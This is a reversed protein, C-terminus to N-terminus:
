EEKKKNNKNIQNQHLHQHQHENNNNKIKKKRKVCCFKVILYEVFCFFLIFAIILIWYYNEDWFSYKESLLYSIIKFTKTFLYFYGVKNPMKIMIKNKDEIFDIISSKNLRELPFISFKGKSAYILNPIKELNFRLSTWGSEIVDIKYFTINSNKNSYIEAIEEMTKIIKNCINCKKVTFLILYDNTLSTSFIKDFNDDNITRITSNIFYSIYEEKKPISEKCLIYVFLIYTLIISITKM